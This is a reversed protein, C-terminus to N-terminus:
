LREVPAALRGWFAELLGVIQEPAEIMPLHGVGDITEHTGGTVEAFEVSMEVPCTPDFPGAAALVPCDVYSARDRIDAGFAGRLIASVVPVPRRGIADLAVQITQDDRSAPGMVEPTIKAFYAATGASALESVMTEIADAGAGTGLTSGLAAISLVRDPQAVALSASITGGLSGGVFHASQIGHADMAAIVDAAWDDVTFPGSLTSSGHGRLDVALSPTQVQRRVPEWITASTNIPHVFVIAGSTPFEATSAYTAIRGAPGRVQKGGNWTAPEYDAAM